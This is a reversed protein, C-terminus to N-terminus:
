CSNGVDNQLNSVILKECVTLFSSFACSTAFQGSFSLIKFKESINTVPKQLTVAVKTANDAVETTIIRHGIPVIYTSHVRFLIFGMQTIFCAVNMIKEMKPLTTVNESLKNKQEKRM